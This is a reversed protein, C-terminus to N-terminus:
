CEERCGSGFWRRYSLEEGSHVAVGDCGEPSSQLQPLRTPVPLSQCVGALQLLGNRRYACPELDTLGRSDRSPIGCPGRDGRPRELGQLVAGPSPFLRIDRGVSVTVVAPLNEAGKGSCETGVFLVLCPGENLQVANSDTLELVPKPHWPFERCEIDNLV